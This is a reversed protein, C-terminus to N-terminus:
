QSFNMSFQPVGIVLFSWLEFFLFRFNSKEKSEACEADEIYYIQGSKFNFFNSIKKKYNNFWKQFFYIFLVKRPPPSREGKFKRYNEEVPWPRMRTDDIKASNNVLKASYKNKTDGQICKKMYTHIYIYTHICPLTTAM